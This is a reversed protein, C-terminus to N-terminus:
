KLKRETLKYIDLETDSRSDNGSARIVVKQGGPMGDYEELLIECSTAYVVRFVRNDLDSPIRM